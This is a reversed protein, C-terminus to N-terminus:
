ESGRFYIWRPYTSLEVNVIATIGPAAGADDNATCVFVRGDGVPVGAGIVSVPCSNNFYNSTDDVNMAYAVDEPSVCVYIDDDAMTGTATQLHIFYEDCPILILCDLDTEDPVTAGPPKVRGWIQLRDTQDYSDAFLGTPVAHLNRIPFEVTGLNYLTWSTASVDVVPGDRYVGGAM